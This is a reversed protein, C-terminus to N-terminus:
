PLPNCIHLGRALPRRASSVLPYLFSRPVVYDAARPSSGPMIRMLAVAEELYLVSLYHVSFLVHFWRSYFPPFLLPRLAAHLGLAFPAAGDRSPSLLVFARPLFRRVLLICCRYVVM